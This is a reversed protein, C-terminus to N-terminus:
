WRGPVFLEAQRGGFRLAKGESGIVEDTFVGRMAEGPRLRVEVGERMANTVAWVAGRRTEIVDVHVGYPLETGGVGAGMGAEVMARKLIEGLGGPRDVDAAAGALTGIYYVCGKGHKKRVVCAGRGELGGLVEVGAGELEVYRWWGRLAEASGRLPVAIGERGPLGLAAMAKALDGEWEAGPLAGPTAASPGKLLDEASGGGARFNQTATSNVERLGVLRAVSSTREHHGMAHRGLTLDYAGAHAECVLVGGDEVWRAIAGATAQELAYVDPLVLMRVGAELGKQVLRDDVYRLRANMRYLIETYAEISQRLRYKSRLGCWQFIENATSKLIAVSSVGEPPVSGMLDGAVPRLRRWMEKAAELARGATGDTELLGWAPSESGLSESRFQWFLFGRVGFGMQPVFEGALDGVTLARPHFWTSGARVHSEVNYCTKGQASSVAQLPFVLSGIVTGGFVDCKEAMLFDDVCTVANMPSMTNPVTHLYVPHEGDIEKVTEIRMGAEDALVRNFFLRWDVMDTLTGKDRPLEVEGWTEYCRGWVRNLGDLSGYKGELWERFAGACRPCYCLLTELQPERSTACLEPENWVDWMGMARHKAYRGVVHRTFARRAERGEAHHYCPGPYGGIQRFSTTGPEVRRGGWTVMVCDPDKEYLWSPGVDYILNITVRLGNAGALEMLEDMDEDFYRGPGRQTWRWQSWFKVDTFGCAAMRGLDEAWLGREPTPARYYQAGFLFPLEWKKDTSM